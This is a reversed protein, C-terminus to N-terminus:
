LRLCTHIISHWVAQLRPVQAGHVPQPLSWGAEKMVAMVEERSGVLAVNIPDGPIGQKTTTVMPMHTLGPQSEYRQWFAPVVVYAALLYLSLMTMCLVLLRFEMKKM